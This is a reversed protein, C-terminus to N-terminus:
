EVIEVKRGETVDRAIQRFLEMAKYEIPAFRDADFAIFPANPRAGHVKIGIAGFWDVIDSIIYIKGKILETPLPRGERASADVCVVKQGVYFDAM